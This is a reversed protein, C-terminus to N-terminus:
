FHNLVEPGKNLLLFPLYCSLKYYCYEAPWDTLKSM